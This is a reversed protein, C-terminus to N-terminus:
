WFPFICHDYTMTELLRLMLMVFRIDQLLINMMTMIVVKMLRMTIIMMTRLIVDRLMMIVVMMAHNIIVTM